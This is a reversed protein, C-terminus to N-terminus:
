SERPVVPDTLSWFACALLVRCAKPLGAERLHNLLAGATAGSHFSEDVILLSNIAIEDGLPLYEMANSLEGMTAGDGSTVRSSKTFRSTLDARARGLLLERFPDAHKFRSPPSVIADFRKWRIRSALTPAHRRAKAMYDVEGHTQDPVLGLAEYTGNRARQVHEFPAADAGKVLYVIGVELCEGHELQVVV